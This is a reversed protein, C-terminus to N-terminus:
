EKKMVKKVQLPQLAKYSHSFNEQLCVIKESYMSKTM